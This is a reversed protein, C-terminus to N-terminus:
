IDQSADLSGDGRIRKLLIGPPGLDERKEYRELLADFAKLATHGM